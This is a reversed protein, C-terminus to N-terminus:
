VDDDWVTILIFKIHEFDYRKGCMLTRIGTPVCMEDNIPSEGAGLRLM